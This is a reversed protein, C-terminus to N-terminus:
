EAPMAAVEIVLPHPLHRLMEKPCVQLFNHREVDWRRLIEAGLASETEAVHREILAKLQGEWHPVTVACTVLTDMNILAAAKGDPDHLYAMGGTM